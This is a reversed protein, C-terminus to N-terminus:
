RFLKKGVLTGMEFIVSIVPFCSIAGFHPVTQSFQGRSLRFYTSATLEPSSDCM